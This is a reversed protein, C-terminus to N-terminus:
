MGAVRAGRGAARAQRARGGRGRRARPRRVERQRAQGRGPRDGPRARGPARRHSAGRGRHRGGGLRVGVRHRRPRRRQRHAGGRSRGVRDAGAAGRSRLDARLRRGGPACPREARSRGLGSRALRAAPHGGRDGAVARSGRRSRRSWGVRAALRAGDAAGRRRARAVLDGRHRVPHGSPGPGPDRRPRAPRARQARPQRGRLPAAQHARPVLRVPGRLRLRLPRSRRPAARLVRHGRRDGAQRARAPLPDLRGRGDGGAAADRAPARGRRHAPAGAPLRQLAQQRAAPGPRRAGRQLARGPDLVDGAPRLAGRRRRLRPVRRGAHLRAAAARGRHPRAPRHRHGAVEVDPARRAGPHGFARLRRRVARRRRVRPGDHDDAGGVPLPHRARHLPRRHSLLRGARADRGALRADRVAVPGLLVLHRARRSRAGLRRGRPRRRRRPDGRRPVLGAAPPGVVASALHVVPPDRGDLQPLRAELARSAAAGAGIRGGRDGPPGARGDEHVVAALHAARHARRLPALLPRQPHLAGRPRDAGRRATRRGGRRPVRARAHRRLGGGGGGDHPRGRRDGLDGRARPRPRDRLRQPRPGAHDQARRHRVRAQRVRRRHDAAAAGGAAPHRERRDAPHLARRRPAGRHRHRGAHDGPPRDRRHGLGLRQGAPLRRLVALRHGRPGGGRPRLHGVALGPGLQGHLQRPLDLGQPVALRLGRARRARLGRRAHLAGARLRLLRGAAQVARHHDLRLRQALGVCAPHLVRPRDGPPQQGREQAGARGPDPGRHGRPRDRPDVEGAARADAPLPDAHGPDLRQPCSGHAARGHRQAAPDRDLLERGRLRGPRSAHAGVEDLRRLRAARGRHARLPHPLRTRE